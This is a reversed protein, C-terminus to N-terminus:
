AVILVYKIDFGMKFKFVRNQNIIYQMENQKHLKM